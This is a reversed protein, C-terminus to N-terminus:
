GAALQPHEGSGHHLARSRGRRHPRSSGSAPPSVPCTRAASTIPSTTGSVARLFSPWAEQLRAMGADSLTANWGRKDQTSKSRNVWGQRELRTVARTMGSVSISCAVALENM